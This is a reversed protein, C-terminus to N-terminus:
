QFTFTKGNNVAQSICDLGTGEWCPKICDTSVLSREQSGGDGWALEWAALSIAQSNAQGLTASYLAASGGHGKAKPQVGCTVSLWRIHILVPGNNQSGDEGAHETPSIRSLEASLDTRQTLHVQMHPSLSNPTAASLSRLKNGLLLVSIVAANHKIHILTTAIHLCHKDTYRCYKTNPFMYPETCLVTQIHTCSSVHAQTERLTM